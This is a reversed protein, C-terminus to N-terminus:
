EMVIKKEAYKSAESHKYVLAYQQFRTANRNLDVVFVYINEKKETKNERDSLYSLSLFIPSIHKNANAWICQIEIARKLSLAVLSFKYM